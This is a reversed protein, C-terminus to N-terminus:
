IFKEASKQARLLDDVVIMQIAYFYKQLVSLDLDSNKIFVM